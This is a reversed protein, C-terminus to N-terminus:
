KTVQEAPQAEGSKKNAPKKTEASKRYSALLYLGAGIVIGCDAFNFTPWRYSSLHVDLFDIVHGHMLRDIANGLIGGVILGMPLQYHPHHLELEGRFFYLAALVVIALTFLVAGYGSFMGWAAGTNIAYVIHFCGPIVTLGGYPPYIGKILGSSHVIWYKSFQDLFFVSCALLIFLKYNQFRKLNIQKRSM